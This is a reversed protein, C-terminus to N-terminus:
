IGKLRLLTLKWVAEAIIHLSMKSKGSTREAFIIPHEVVEQGLQQCQYAIEAQFGFGKCRVADLDIARLADARYAKFGATADRVSVGTVSRILSNGLASLLKREWGWGPDVGGDAAYRSGVVVDASSLQDLMVPVEEPPHSLDADMQVVFDVDEELARRFGSVYATGLGQKGSRSIIEVRWGNSESLSKAIDASGDPSSDDVLYLRVEGAELAFLRPLLAPLNEAENYTPVVVAVLPCHLTGPRDIM